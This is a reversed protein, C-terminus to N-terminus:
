VALPPGAPTPTATPRATRVEITAILTISRNRDMAMQPEEVVTLNAPQRMIFLSRVWWRNRPTTKMPRSTAPMQSTFATKVWFNMEKSRTFRVVPVIPRCSGDLASTLTRPTITPWTIFASDSPSPAVRSSPMLGSSIM